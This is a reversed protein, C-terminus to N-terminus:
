CLIACLFFVAISFLNKSINAPAVHINCHPNTETVSQGWLCNEQKDTSAARTEPQETRCGCRTGGPHLQPTQSCWGGDHRSVGGPWCRWWAWGRWRWSPSCQSSKGAEMMYSQARLMFGETSEHLQIPMNEHLWLTHMARYKDEETVVSWIQDCPIWLLSYGLVRSQIIKNKWGLMERYKLEPHRSNGGGHWDRTSGEHGDKKNTFSCDADKRKELSSKLIFPMRHTNNVSLHLM